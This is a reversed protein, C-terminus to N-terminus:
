RQARDGERSTVDTTGATAYGGAEAFTRRITADDCGSALLAHLLIRAKLPDLFGASILQRGLLDSESGPFSYTQALVSGAGTRSALVVPMRTALDGLLGVLTEPVHGVGFGAVVLGDFAAEASKLQAGTDGLVVTVLGVEVEIPMGVRSVTTHSVLRNLIRPQAEIVYGLPGGNPSVFTHGSTSHTKRVRSAAHIEDAFVVLAGLDRAVPSAATQVAALLNAPGDAGALTPNRM